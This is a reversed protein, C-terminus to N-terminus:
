TGLRWVRVHHSYSTEGHSSSSSIEVAVSDRANVPTLRLVLFGDGGLMPLPPLTIGLGVL